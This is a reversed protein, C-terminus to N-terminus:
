DIEASQRVLMRYEFPNPAQPHNSITILRVGSLLQFTDFDYLNYGDLRVDFLINRAKDIEATFAEHASAVVVKRNNFRSWGDLRYELAMDTRGQRGLKMLPEPLIGGTFKTVVEGNGIPGEPLVTTSRISEQMYKEVDARDINSRSLAPASFEMNQIHGRADMVTRTELLTVVPDYAQEDIVLKEFHIHRVLFEGMPRVDYSGTIELEQVLERLVNQDPYRAYKVLSHTFTGKCPAYRPTFPERIPKILGDYRPIKGSMVDTKLDPRPTSCSAAWLVIVVATFLRLRNRRNLMDPTKPM